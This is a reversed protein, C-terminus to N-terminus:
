QNQLFELAIESAKQEANKKKTDTAQAIVKNGVKVGITYVKHSGRNEENLVEYSLNSIKKKQVFEL